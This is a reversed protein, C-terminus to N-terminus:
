TRLSLTEYERALPLGGFRTLATRVNQYQAEQPPADVQM